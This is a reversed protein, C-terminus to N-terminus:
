FARGIQRIPLGYAARFTKGKEANKNLKAVAILAIDKVHSFGCFGGRIFPRVLIIGFRREKHGVPFIADDPPRRSRNPNASISYVIPPAVVLIEGPGEMFSM